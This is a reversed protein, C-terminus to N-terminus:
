AGKLRAGEPIVGQELYRWLAVLLRRGLAVIGVRRTRKGQGFHAHFWTTLASSPQLRLWMWALEVILARVRRNGAKTIGQDREGAGSSYPANVMGAASGVQRRNEFDRFLFEHVLQWASIEGVGVLGMLTVVKAVLPNAPGEQALYAKVERRRAKELERRQERVLRLRIQERGLELLLHPPLPKGHPTPLSSFVVTEVNDELVVGELALLAGIRSRHAIEEHKLRDRERSDRRADEIERTPVRVARCAETEGRALRILAAVLMSADLRDTKTRRMRRDVQLSTPDLVLNEIGRDVLLRHLWFGDRGAEYCCRVPADSRLGFKRKAAAVERFVGEVDRAALQAHRVADSRGDRSALLWKTASMEIAVFLTPRMSAERRTTQTNM